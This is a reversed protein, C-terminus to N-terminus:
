NEKYLNQLHASYEDIIEQTMSVKVQQLSYKSWKEKSKFKQAKESQNRIDEVEVGLQSAISAKRSVGVEHSPSVLGLLEDLMGYPIAIYNSEINHWQVIFFEYYLALDKVNDHIVLSELKTPGQKIAPLLRASYNKGSLLAKDRYETHPAYAMLESYYKDRENNYLHLLYNAIDQFEEWDEDFAEEFLTDVKVVDEPSLKETNGVMHQPEMLWIRRDLEELTPVFNATITFNIPRIIQTAMVGGKMNTMRRQASSGFDKIFGYIQDWKKTDELDNFLLAKVGVVIDGWGTSPHDPSIAKVSGILRSVITSLTYTKGTGGGKNGATMLAPVMNPPRKENWMLHALWHYYLEESNIEKGEPTRSIHNGFVSSILRTIPNDPKEILPVAENEYRTKYTTNITPLSSKEDYHIYPLYPDSVYKVQPVMLLDDKTWQRLDLIVDKSIQYDEGKGSTRLELTHENLEAYILQKNIIGRVVYHGNLLTPQLQQELTDFDNDSPENRPLTPLINKNLIVQSKASNPNIEYANELLLQLFRDRVEHHLAWNYSVKTAMKNFMDYTLPPFELNKKTSKYHEKFYETPVIAKLLLKLDKRATPWEEVASMVISAYGKNFYYTGHISKTSTTGSSQVLKEVAETEEVTLTIIPCDNVVTSNPYGEAVIGTTLVDLLGEHPPMQIGTARIEGLSKTTYVYYHRKHVQTSSTTLTNKISPIVEEVINYDIGDLDLVVLNNELYTKAVNFRKNTDLSTKDALFRATEKIKSGDENFEYYASAYFELGTHKQVIDVVDKNYTTM